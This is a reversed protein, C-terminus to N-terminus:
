RRFVFWLYEAFYLSLVLLLMLFFIGFINKLHILWAFRQSRSRTYRDSFFYHIVFVIGLGIPGAIFIDINLSREIIISILLSGFIGFYFKDRYTKKGNEKKM